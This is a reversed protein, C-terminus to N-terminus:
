TAKEEEDIIRISKMMEFVAKKWYKIDRTMCNFAGMILMDEVVFFYLLNYLKGDLTPNTFSVHAFTQDLITEIGKEQENLGPNVRRMMGFIQDRTGEVDENTFTGEMQSFMINVSTTQDTLIVKPRDESPYKIKADAESMKNFHDPVMMTIKDDIFMREEFYTWKGKIKLGTYITRDEPKIEAQPTNNELADDQGEVENLMEIIQEDLFEKKDM